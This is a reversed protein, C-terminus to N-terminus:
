GLTVKLHAAIDARVKAPLADIAAVLPATDVSGGLASLKILMTKIDALEQAAPVYEGNRKVTQQGFAGEGANILLRYVTDPSYKESKYNLLRSVVETAVRNIDDDTLPMDDEAHKDLDPDYEWHWPEPLSGTPKAWAPQYWGFAPGKAVLWTHLPSGFGGVLWDVARGEGHISQGAPMTTLGISIMHEQDAISRYCSWGTTPHLNHGGAKAAAMTRAVAAAPAPLLLHPTGDGNRGFVQVLAAAPLRGNLRTVVARAM